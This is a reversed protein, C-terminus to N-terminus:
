SHLFKSSKIRANVLICIQNKPLFAMASECYGATAKVQEAYVVHIVVALIDAVVVFESQIVVLAQELFGDAARIRVLVGVRVAGLAVEVIVALLLQPLVLCALVKRQGDMCLYARLRKRELILFVALQDEILIAIKDLQPSPDQDGRFLGAAVGHPVVVVCGRVQECHLDAACAVVAQSIRLVVDDAQNVAASLLHYFVM